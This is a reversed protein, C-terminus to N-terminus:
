GRRRSTTKIAVKLRKGTQVTTSRMKNMRMIRHISVGYRKAIHALTDGRRVRHTVIEVRPTRAAVTKKRLKAKRKASRTVKAIRAKKTRRAKTAKKRLAMITAKRRAKRNTQQVM